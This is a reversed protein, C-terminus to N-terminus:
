AIVGRGLCAVCPCTRGTRDDDVTGDGGCTRCEDGCKMRGCPCGAVDCPSATMAAQVAYVEAKRADIIQAQTMGATDIPKPFPVGPHRCEAHNCDACPPCEDPNFGDFDCEHLETVHDTEVQVSPLESPKLAHITM